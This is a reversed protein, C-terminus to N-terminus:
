ESKPENNWFSIHVGNFTTMVQFRSLFRMEDLVDAHVDNYYVFRIKRPNRELSNELNGCLARLTDEGFSNFLFFTTGEDLSVDLVDSCHVEFPAKRGRMRELNFRSRVCLDNVLEIGIVKKLPVRAMVCLIRGLGSGLDYFVEDSNGEAFLMSRILRVYHYDPPEYHRCDEFRSLGQPVEERERTGWLRGSFSDLSATNIRLARDNAHEWIGQALRFCTMMKM